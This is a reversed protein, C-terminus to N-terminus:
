FILALLLLLLWAPNKQWLAVGIAVLAIIIKTNFM